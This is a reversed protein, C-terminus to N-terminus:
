FAWTFGTTSTGKLGVAWLYPTLLIEWDGDTKDDRLVGDASASFSFGVTLVPMMLLLYKRLRM